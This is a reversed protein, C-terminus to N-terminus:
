LEYGHKADPAAFFLTGGQVGVVFPFNNHTILGPEPGPWVDKVLRTGQATGDSKWLEWGHVKEYGFFFLTDGVPTLYSPHSDDYNSGKHIDKVLATGAATGDTSWLERGHIGDRVSFFIRGRFPTLNTPPDMYVPRGQNGPNIDRIMVTGQTTGDSIWLEAGHKGDEAYCVLRDGLPTLERPQVGGGPGPHFDKVVVTGNRTGDTKWLSHGRQPDAATFYTIGFVDVFRAPLSNAPGAQIDKLLCNAQAPLLACLFGCAALAICTSTRFM